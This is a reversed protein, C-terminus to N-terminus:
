FGRFINKIIQFMGGEQKLQREKPVMISGGGRYQKRNKKRKKRPMRSEKITNKM